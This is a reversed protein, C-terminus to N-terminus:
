FPKWKRPTASDRLADLRVRFETAIDASHSVNQMIWTTMKLESIAQLVRFGSWETIDFGYARVFSAYDPRTYWGIHYEVATVALDAEPPGFAFREFDILVPAGKRTRMLNATHADGHVACPRLPFRLAAYESRLESVRERLFRRDEEPIDCARDIRVDVRGFMDFAPLSLDQPPKLRHLERLVTGLEGVSAEEGTSEIFKWFTVPRGAAVIPQEFDATEAARMGMSRLWRSVAVEKRADSLVDIGRAIRVVVDSDSIRYIANEGLRILKAGEGRLGVRACAELLATRSAEPTFSHTAGETDTM